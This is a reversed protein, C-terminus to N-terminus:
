LCETGLEKAEETQPGLRPRRPCQFHGRRSLFLLTSATPLGLPCATWRKEPRFDLGEAVTSPSASAATWGGTETDGWSEPGQAETLYWTSDRRCSALMPAAALAPGRMPSRRLQSLLAGLPGEAGLVESLAAAGM